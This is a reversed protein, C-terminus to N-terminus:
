TRRAPGWKAADVGFKLVAEGAEINAMGSDHTGPMTIEHLRREGSIGSMWNTGNIKGNLDAETVITIDDVAQATRSSLTLGMALLCCSLGLLVCRLTRSIKTM